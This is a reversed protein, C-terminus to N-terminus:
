DFLNMQNHAESRNQDIDVQALLEDLPMQECLTQQRAQSDIDCNAPLADPGGEQFVGQYACRLGGIGDTGARQEDVGLVVARLREVLM